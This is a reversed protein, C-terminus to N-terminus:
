KAVKAVFELTYNRTVFTTGDNRRREVPEVNVVKINNELSQTYLDTLDKCGLSELNRYSVRGKDTQIACWEGTRTQGNSQISYPEAKPAVDTNIGFVLDKTLTLGVNNQRLADAHNTQLDVIASKINENLQKAM